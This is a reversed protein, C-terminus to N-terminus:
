NTQPEIHIDGQISSLTGKAMQRHVSNMLECILVVQRFPIIWKSILVWDIHPDEGKSEPENKM